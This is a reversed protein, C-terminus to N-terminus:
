GDGERPSPRPSPSATPTPRQSDDRIRAVIARADALDDARVGDELRPRWFPAVDEISLDTQEELTALGRLSDSPLGRFIAVRGDHVGVFMSRGLVARVGFFAGTGLALVLLSWAVARRPFRRRRRPRRRLGAGRGAAPAGGAVSVLVVTINDPGGRDNAEDILRQCITELDDAAAAFDAIEEDSLVATLGDSCLLLRDGAQLAVETQDVEVDHDAGLARLLLSRQPHHDAQEPTLKGEKVMRAVVTHDDTVQVISRGRVLYCRSDGVHAVHATGNSIAVATLTTGMGRLSPDGAAREFVLRNGARVAGAIGRAADAPSRDALGALPELAVRSAIEGAKHGGLGDAVAYVAGRAFFADENRERARGVDTRAAAQLTM